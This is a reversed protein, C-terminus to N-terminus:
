TAYKFKKRLDRRPESTKEKLRVVSHKKLERWVENNKKQKASGFTKQPRAAAWLRKMIRAVIKKKYIVNWYRKKLRM